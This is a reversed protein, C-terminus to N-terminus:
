VMSIDIGGSVDSRCSTRHDVGSSQQGKVQKQKEERDKRQLWLQSSLLRGAGSGKWANMCRRVRGIRLPLRDCRDRLGM